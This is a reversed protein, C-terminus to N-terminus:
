AIRRPNPLNAKGARVRSRCFIPQPQETSFCTLSIRRGQGHSDNKQMSRRVPTKTASSTLFTVHGNDLLSRVMNRATLRVRRSYPMSGSLGTPPTRYRKDKSQHDPGEKKMLILEEKRM